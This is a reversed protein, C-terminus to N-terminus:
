LSTAQKLLRQGQKRDRKNLKNSSVLTPPHQLCGSTYDVIQGTTNQKTCGAEQAAHGSPRCPQAVLATLRTSSHCHQAATYAWHQQTTWHM